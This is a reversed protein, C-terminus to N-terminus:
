PCILMSALPPSDVQWDKHKTRRMQGIRKALEAFNGYSYMKIVPSKRNLVM